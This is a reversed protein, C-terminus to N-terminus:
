RQLRAGLRVMAKRHLWRAQEEDCDMRRGVEAYALGELDRLEIVTRLKPDLDEMAEALRHLHENWVLQSSPSRSRSTRRDGSLSHSLADFVHERQKRVADRIRNRAVTTMWRLLAREDQLDLADTPELVEVLVDNVFDDSEACARAPEGMMLRIREHLRGRYREVLDPLASRDGGQLRRWLQLTEAPTPGLSEM